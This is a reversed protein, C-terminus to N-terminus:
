RARAHSLSRNGNDGSKQVDAFSSRKLWKTLTRAMVDHGMLTIRGSEIEEEFSSHGM